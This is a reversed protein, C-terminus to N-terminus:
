IWSGAKAGRSAERDERGAKRGRASIRLKRNARYVLTKGDQSIQFDTIGHVLTEHKLDKFAFAELTGKAAVSVAM